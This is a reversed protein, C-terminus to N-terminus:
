LITIIIVDRVSIRSNGSKGWMALNVNYNSDRLLIKNNVNHVSLIVDYVKKWFANIKLLDLTAMKESMM